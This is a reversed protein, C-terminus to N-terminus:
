ARKSWMDRRSVGDEDNDTTAPDGVLFTNEDENHEKVEVCRHADDEQVFTDRVWWFEGVRPVSEMDQEAARVGFHGVAVARPFVPLVQSHDQEDDAQESVADAEASREAARARKAPPELEGEGSEAAEEGVIEPKDQDVVVTAPSLDSASGDWAAVAEVFFYVSM